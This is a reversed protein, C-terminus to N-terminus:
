HLVNPLFEVSRVQIEWMYKGEFFDSYHREGNIYRKVPNYSQFGEFYPQMLLWKAVEIPNRHYFEVPEPHNSNWAVNTVAKSWSELGLGDDMMDLKKRLIYNSGLSRKVSDDLPYDGKLLEDIATGSVGSTIFWRALNFTKRDEFPWYPHPNRISDLVYSEYLSLVYNLPSGRNPHQEITIVDHTASSPDNLRPQNDRPPVVTATRAFVQLQRSIEFDHRQVSTDVLYEPHEQELHSQRWGATKYRMGCVPCDNPSEM